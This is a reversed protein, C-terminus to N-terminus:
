NAPVLLLPEKGPRRLEAAEVNFGEIGGRGKAKRIRAFLEGEGKSGRLKLTITATEKADDMEMTNVSFEVEDGIHQRVLPHDRFQFAIEEGVKEAAKRQGWFALGATGALIVVAVALCGVLLIPGTKKREM